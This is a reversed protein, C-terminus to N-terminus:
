GDDAALGSTELGLRSAERLLPALDLGARWRRHADRIEDPASELGAAVRALAAV